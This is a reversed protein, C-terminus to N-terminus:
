RQNCKGCTLVADRDLVDITQKAQQLTEINEIGFVLNGCESCGVRIIKYQPIFDFVLEMEDKSYLRNM